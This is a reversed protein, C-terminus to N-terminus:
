KWEEALLGYIIQDEYYDYLLEAQRRRGEEKFGFKKPLARSRKNGAAIYLEIKNLNLIQFGYNIVEKFARSMIGKGEFKEGLWYGMEGIKNFKDVDNFGVTGAMQGKYVIVFWKPYGGNEVLGEIRLTLSENTDEQSNVSNVWTIWTKLHQKSNNIINYFEEKDDENFLRLCVESDIENKMM